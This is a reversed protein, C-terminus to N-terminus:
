CFLGLAQLREVPAAHLAFAHIWVHYSVLQRLCSSFQVPRCRQFSTVCPQIRALYKVINAVGTEKVTDWVEFHNMIEQTDERSLM